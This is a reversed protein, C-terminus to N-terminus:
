GEKWEEIVDLLSTDPDVSVVHTQMLDRAKPM